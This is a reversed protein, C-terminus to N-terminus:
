VRAVDEEVEFVELLAVSGGGGRQGLELLSAATRSACPVEGQSSKLKVLTAM